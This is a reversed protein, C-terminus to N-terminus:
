KKMEWLLISGIIVIGIITSIGLSAIQLYSILIVGAIMMVVGVAPNWLGVMGIILLIMTAWFLGEMGFIAKVARKIISDLWVLIEPSRSIYAEAYITGDYDTVNCTLTAASSTDTNNCIVTRSAGGDTYVFLRGFSTTGSTDVYTYKWIKTDENYTLSWILNPLDGIDTWTTPVSPEIQFSLTCPTEGCFVKAKDGEFLITGEKFIIVKYDETEAEFHGVTNGSSDTRAMEITHFVGTGPYYRQIYVYADIVPFQVSDMVNIIFSTSSSTNLLYLEINNTTNTLTTNILYHSRKVYGSKEYQIQADSYYTLNDPSLCFLIDESVSTNSVSINKKTNGSGLWYEFTADFKFDSIKTLDEEDYASFNLTLNSGSACGSTFLSIQGINQTHTTLNQFVFTNDSKEYTLKWYWDSSNLTSYLPVDLSTSIFYKNSGLDTITGEYLTKNYNLQADYLTTGPLLTINTTFTERSTEYTKNNYIESDITAGVFFSYNTDEFSCNTFTSNAYCVYTNWEYDGLKFNDIYETTTNSTGNIHVVVTNNFVGTSNWLYYTVNTLNYSEGISYSATFNEGVDSLVSDDVPSTLDINLEGEGGFTVGLGNNYLDSIETASLTRNWIGVEDIKGNMPNDAYNSGLVGFVYEGASLNSGAGYDSTRNSLTGNKYFEGTGNNFMVIALHIWTNIPASEEMLINGSAGTKITYNQTPRKYIGVASGEEHWIHNEATDYFYVWGSWTWNEIYPSTYNAYVTSSNTFNLGGENIGSDYGIGGHLTLNYGNGTADAITDDMTWYVEIGDEPNWLSAFAYTMCLIVGVLVMVGVMLTASFRETRNNRQPKEMNKLM